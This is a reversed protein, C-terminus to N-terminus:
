FILTNCDTLLDLINKRSILPIFLCINVVLVFVLCCYVAFEKDDDVIMEHNLMAQYLHHTQEAFTLKLLFDM